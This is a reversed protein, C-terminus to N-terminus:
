RVPKSLHCQLYKALQIVDKKNVDERGLGQLRELQKKEMRLIKEDEELTVYLAGINGYSILM